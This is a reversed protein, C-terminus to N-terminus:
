WPDRQAMLARREREVLHERLASGVGTCWVAIAHILLGLGWGMAPFISWYRGQWVSVSILVANVLLYIGAHLFWGAKAKARKHALREIEDHTM